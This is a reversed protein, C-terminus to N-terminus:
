YFDCLKIFYLNKDFESEVSVSKFILHFDCLADIDHERLIDGLMPPSKIWVNCLIIGYFHLGRLHKVCNKAFM